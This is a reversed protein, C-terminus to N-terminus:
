CLLWIVLCLECSGPVLVCFMKKILYRCRSFTIRCQTYDIQCVRASLESHADAEALESPRLAPDEVQPGGPGGLDAQAPHSASKKEQKASLRVVAADPGSFLSASTTESSLLFNPGIRKPGLSWIRQLREALTLETLTSSAESVCLVFDANHTHAVQNKAVPVLLM